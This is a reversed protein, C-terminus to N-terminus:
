TKMRPSNFLPVVSWQRLLPRRARRPRLGQGPLTAAGNPSQESDGAVTFRPAAARPLPTTPVVIVRVRDPPLVARPELEAVVQEVERRSKGRIRALLVGANEPRLFKAVMSVTTLNVDGSELYTHLEPFRALCRATRIRRAAAPESFRLHSTCYVFMSSYGRKLYLQRREIENLHLLLSLTLKRDQSCHLRHPRSSRTIPFPVFSDFM